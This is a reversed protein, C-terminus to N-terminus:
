IRYTLEDAYNEATKLQENPLITAFDSGNLRFTKGSPWRAITKKIIDAVKVIYEDGAHYGRVQNITQLESCRTILLVGFKIPSDQVIQKEYFQVFAIVIKM